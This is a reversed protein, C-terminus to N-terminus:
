KRSYWNVGNNDTEVSIRGLNELYNLHAIAEGTAMILNSDNIERKFLAPFTDIARRPEICLDELAELGDQHELILADLREHAGRFPKGHAPFM